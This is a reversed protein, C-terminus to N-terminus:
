LVRSHSAQSHIGADSHQETCHSWRKAARLWAFLATLAYPVAKQAHKRAGHNWRATESCCLQLHSTILVRSHTGQSHISADGHQETCHSWRKAARLWAFLATLAYPVAKQAHKRAGHNWRATESCCLQLHSTILVRAHTAKSHIGADSHQETCHSWRKAAPLISLNQQPESDKLKKRCM